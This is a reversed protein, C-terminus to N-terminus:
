SIAEIEMVHGNHEVTDGVVLGEMKRYIPSDQSLGMYTQGECDFRRTAVAVVFHRGSLTVVAGPGVEPKPTFDLTELVDIKAEHDHIPHDFGHALDQSMRAMAIEDKDHTERRDLMAEHLYAEYHERAAHLADSELAMMRARLTIKDAHPM